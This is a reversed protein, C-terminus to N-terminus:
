KKVAGGVVQEINHILTSLDTMAKVYFGSVGLETAKQKDEASDRNSFIFVPVDKNAQSNRIEELVEFGSRGPLMLDLIVIDPKFETLDTEIGEGNKNIRYPFSARELRISLLNALLADDEVVLVKIGTTETTRHTEGLDIIRNGASNVSDGLVIRVKNMISEVTERPTFYDAAGLALVREITTQNDPVLVFVPLTNTERSKQLEQLVSECHKNDHLHNLFIVSANNKIILDVNFEPCSIVQVASGERALATHIDHIQTSEDGVVLVHKKLLVSM